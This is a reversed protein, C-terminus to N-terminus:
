QARYLTLTATADDGTGSIAVDFKWGLNKGSNMKKGNAFQSKYDAMSFSSGNGFLDTAKIDNSNHVPATKDNRILKLLSYDDNLKSYDSNVSNSFAHEVGYTDQGVHVDTTLHDLSGNDNESTYYVLRADVHWLRIGVSTPGKPYNGSWANASDFANLGTPTYLELLLYEDFPSNTSNWNPTLLVVDHTKQFAGIEIVCSETPIYPDAWGYAMVSYPDHGGVNCDQMSFGGAHSYRADGYDYYDDLGFVHGMEHIYTHADITCHSCDGGGYTTKGTRSQAKTSDYMFDYSAWFYTNPQPNSSDPNEIEPQLWYCYAWLNNSSEGLSDYDPAGYILMVGDLFGDHDSDYDTKNDSHNDFYWKTAANVLDSTPDSTQTAEEKLAATTKGCEYWESVTGSLTVKGESETEYFSKVSHWGTQETTGLYATEIDSRVEDKHDTAIYTSSDTFWVPIILLKPSGSTPCSDIPYAGYDWDTLDSYKYGMTQKSSPATGQSPDGWTTPKVAGFTFSISYLVVRKNKKGTFTISQSGETDSTFNYSYQAKSNVTVSKATSADPVVELTVNEDTKGSSNTFAKAVVSVSKVVIEDSFTITLVGNGTSTGLKIIGSEANVGSGTIGDIQASQDGTVSYQSNTFTTIAKNGTTSFVVVADGSAPQVDPDDPTDSGSGSSSSGSSSGGGSGGYNLVIESVYSRKTATITITKSTSTDSAFENYVYYDEGSISKIGGQTNASTAVALKAADTGYAKARIAVSHILIGSGLTITMSGANKSSSFKVNTDNTPYIYSGDITATGGSVTAVKTFSTYAKSTNTDGTSDFVIGITTM